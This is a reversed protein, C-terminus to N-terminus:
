IQKLVERYLQIALPNDKNKRAEEAKLLLDNISPDNQEM